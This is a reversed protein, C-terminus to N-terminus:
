QEEEDDDERQKTHLQEAALKVEDNGLVLWAAVEVREPLRQEGDKLHDVM